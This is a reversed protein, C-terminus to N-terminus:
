DPIDLLQGAQIYDANWLHNTKAIEPWRYKNNYIEIAIRELTDGPKVIYKTKTNLEDTLENQLAEANVTQAAQDTIQNKKQDTKFYNIILSVVIVLVLVGLITSITEENLSIKLM